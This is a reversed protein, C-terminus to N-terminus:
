KRPISNVHGPAEKGIIADVVAELSCGYLGAITKLKDLTPRAAGNEWACLSAQSVGLAAAAATQTMKATKRLEKMGNM